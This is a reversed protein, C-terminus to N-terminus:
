STLTPTPTLVDPNPNPNPRSAILTLTLTLALTLTLTLALTLTQTEATAARAMVRVPAAAPFLANVAHFYSASSADPEIQFSGGGHPFVRVQHQALPLPCRRLTLSPRVLPARQRM